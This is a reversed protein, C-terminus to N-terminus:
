ANFQVTEFVVHAGDPPSDNSLLLVESNGFHFRGLVEEWGLGYYAAYLMKGFDGHTVLLISPTSSSITRIHALLRHARDVLDPFTEADIPDLFYNISDTVLVNVSYSACRDLISSTPRGTMIGFDREILDDLIRIEITSRAGDNTCSSPSRQDDDEDNEEDDDVVVDNGDDRDGYCSSSSLVGAFIEATERARRLPSSYIAGLVTTSSCSSSMSSSSPPSLRFGAGYMKRAVDYAQERGLLTLEGDRRGNLIGNANDVDQGHRAVYIRVGDM